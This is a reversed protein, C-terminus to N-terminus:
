AARDLVATRRDLDILISRYRRYRTIEPRLHLAVFVVMGATAARRRAPLDGRICRTVERDIARSGAAIVDILM